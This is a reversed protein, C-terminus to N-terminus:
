SHSRSFIVARKAEVCITRLPAGRPAFRVSVIIRSAESRTKTRVAESARGVYKTYSPGTKASSLSRVLAVVDYEDRLSSDLVVSKGIYGTYGGVILLKRSPPSSADPTSPTSYLSTRSHLNSIHSTPVFTYSIVSVLTLCCLLIHFLQSGM